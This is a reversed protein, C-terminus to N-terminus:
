KNRAYNGKKLDEIGRMEMEVRKQYEPTQKMKDFVPKWAGGEIGVLIDEDSVVVVEAEKTKKLADLLDSDKRVGLLDDKGPNRTVELMIKTRPIHFDSTVVVVKEWNNKAALLLM